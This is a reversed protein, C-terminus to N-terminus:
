SGGEVRETLMPSTKANQRALLNSLLMLGARTKLAALALLARPDLAGWTDHKRYVRYAGMHFQWIRWPSKKRGAKNNEYHTIRAAPVCYVTKGARAVQKCWDTDVWYCRFGEDWPGVQEILERRMFMCAASVQEVQFPQESALNERRLYRRAFPNNPFLRTLRSQRGFLGATWSPFSRASEEIKGQPTYIRGACLSVDPRETMFRVLHEVSDAALQTDADLLMVFEGRVLRLGRNVAAPLGLNTPNQEVRVGSFAQEVRQPTGDVSGNDVLVVEFDRFTLEELSGLLREVDPWCNWSVILISLKPSPM